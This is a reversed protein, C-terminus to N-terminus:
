FFPISPLLVVRRIKGEVTKLPDCHRWFQSILRSEGVAMNALRASASLLYRSRPREMVPPVLRSTLVRGSRGVKPVDVPFLFLM